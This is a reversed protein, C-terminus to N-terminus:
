LGHWWSKNMIRASFTQLGKRVSQSQGYECAIMTYISLVVNALLSFDFAVIGLQVVEAGVLRGTRSLLHGVMIENVLVGM